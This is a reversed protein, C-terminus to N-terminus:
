FMNKILYNIEILMFNEITLKNMIGSPDQADRSRQTKLSSDSASILGFYAFRQSCQKLLDFSNSFNNKNNYNSTKSKVRHRTNSQKNMMVSILFHGLSLCNLNPDSSIVTLLRFNLIAEIQIM